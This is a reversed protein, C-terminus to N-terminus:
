DCVIWLGDMVINIAVLVTVIIQLRNCERLAELTLGGVVILFFSFFFSSVFTRLALVGCCVNCGDVGIQQLRHRMGGGQGCVICSGSDGGASFPTSTEFYIMGSALVLFVRLSDIVFEYRYSRGYYM